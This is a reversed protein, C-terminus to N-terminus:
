SDDEALRRKGSRVGVGIAGGVVIVLGGLAGFITGFFTSMGCQGDVETPGCDGMRGWMFIGAFFVLGAAVFCLLQLRASAAVRVRLKSFFSMASMM